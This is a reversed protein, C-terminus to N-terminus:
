IINIWYVNLSRASCLWSYRLSRDLQQKRISEINVSRVSSIFPESSSGVCGISHLHVAKFHKIDTTTSSSQHSPLLYQTLKKKEEEKKFSVTEKV